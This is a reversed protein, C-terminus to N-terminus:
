RRAGQQRPLPQQALAATARAKMRLWDCVDNLSMAHALQAFVMTGLYNLVSFTRAKAEV